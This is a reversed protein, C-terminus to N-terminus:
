KSGEPRPELIEARELFARVAHWHAKSSVPFDNHGCEFAELFGNSAAAFLAEGHHFPIIEDNRGHLVLVPGDYAEIAELNEMPDLVVPGFLGFTALMSRLSRFTSQLIVAAPRRQRTLACVAGGGISRGYLVIRQADVEPRLGLDDFASALVAVISDETPSGESRGYGPFEVLLM